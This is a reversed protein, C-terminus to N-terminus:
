DFETTSDKLKKWLGNVEAKAAQLHEVKKNFLGKARDFEKQIDKFDQDLIELKEGEILKNKAQEIKLAKQVVAKRITGVEKLAEIVERYEKLLYERQLSLDKLSNLHIKNKDLLQEDAEIVDHIVNVDQEDINSMKERKLVQMQKYVDRATRLFIERRTNEKAILDALKMHADTVKEKASILDRWDKVLNQEFRALEKEDEPTLIPM